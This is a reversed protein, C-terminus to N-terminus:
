GFMCLQKSDIFNAHESICTSRCIDDIGSDLRCVKKLNDCSMDCITNLRYTNTVIGLAVVQIWITYLYSIKHLDLINLM